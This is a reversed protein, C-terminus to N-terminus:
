IEISGEGLLINIGLDLDSELFKIAQLRKEKSHLGKEEEKEM